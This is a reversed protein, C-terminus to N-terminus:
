KQKDDPLPEKPEAHGFDKLSTFVQDKNARNHRALLGWIEPWAEQPSDQCFRIFEIPLLGFSICIHSLPLELITALNKALWFRMPRQGTLCYHLHQKSMDGVMRSFDEMTIEKELCYRKIAKRIFGRYGSDIKRPRGPGPSLINKNNGVTYKPKREM